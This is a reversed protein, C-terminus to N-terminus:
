PFHSVCMAPCAIHCSVTFFTSLSFHVSYSRSYPSFCQFLHFILFACELVQFLALFSFIMSFSFCVMYSTFYPSFYEFIHFIIFVCQLILVKALFSCFTSFSVCVSNSRSYPSICEFVHFLFSICGTPGPFHRSFQFNHFILFVCQLVHLIPLYVSFPIFICM